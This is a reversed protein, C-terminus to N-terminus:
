EEEADEEELDLDPDDSYTSIIQLKFCANKLSQYAPGFVSKDVATVNKSVVGHDDEIQKFIAELKTQYSGARKKHAATVGMVRGTTTKGIADDIDPSPSVSPHARFGNRPTAKKSAKSGATKRM